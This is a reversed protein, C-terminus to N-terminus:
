NQKSKGNIKANIEKRLIKLCNECMFIKNVRGIEVVFDATNQCMNFDCKKNFLSPQIM